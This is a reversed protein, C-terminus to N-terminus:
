KHSELYRGAAHAIDPNDKLLGLAVNCKNCLLGRVKGTSHCHDVHTHKGQDLKDKCVGCQGEQQELMEVYQDYTIGYKKLKFGKNREPNQQKWRRAHATKSVSDYPKKCQACRANSVHRM